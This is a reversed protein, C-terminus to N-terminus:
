TLTFGADVVLSAGTVRDAADSALWLMANTIDEPDLMAERDFLNWAGTLAATEEMWEPYVETIQLMPTDVGGPCVINVNIGHPALDIALARTLGLLGHKATAYHANKSLAIFSEVSGTFLIKGRQREKMGPVVAKACNLAGRLMTDMVADWAETSMEEIEVASNVGANHILIDVKGLEAIAQAVMAEVQDPKRVDCIIPLCRADLSEVEVAVQNLEEETGLAYPITEIDAGIDCAVVSAGAAAFGLAHARGQGRAAGTVLVVRSSYDYSVDRIERAM